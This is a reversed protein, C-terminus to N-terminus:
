HNGLLEKCKEAVEGVVKDNVPSSGKKVGIDILCLYEFDTIGESRLTKGACEVSCGDIVLRRPAKKAGDILKQVGGGIGALCFMRGLGDRTLLRAARDAIEGVDAAGSCPFILTPVTASKCREEDTM